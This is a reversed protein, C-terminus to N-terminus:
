VAGGQKAQAESRIHAADEGAQGSTNCQVRRAIVASVKEEALVIRTLDSAISDMAHGNADIHESVSLYERFSQKLAQVDLGQKAPAAPVWIDSGHWAYGLAGLTRVAATDRALQFRKEATLEAELEAILAAQREILEAAKDLQKNVFGSVDIARLTSAAVQAEQALATSTNKTNM